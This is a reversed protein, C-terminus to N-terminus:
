SNAMMLLIMIFVGINLLWGLFLLGGAATKLGERVNPNYGLNVGQGASQQIWYTSIRDTATDFGIFLSAVATAMLMVMFGIIRMAAM